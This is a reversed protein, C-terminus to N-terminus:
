RNSSLIPKSLYVILGETAMDVFETRYELEILRWKFAHCLRTKKFYGIGQADRFLQASLYLKELIKAIRDASIKSKGSNQLSAPFQKALENALNEGFKVSEKSSLFSLM